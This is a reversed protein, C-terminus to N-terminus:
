IFFFFCLCLQLGKTVLCQKKDGRGDQQKRDPWLSLAVSDGWNSILNSCMWTTKLLIPSSISVDRGVQWKGISFQWSTYFIEGLRRMTLRLSFRCCSKLQLSKILGQEVKFIVCLLQLGDNSMRGRAHRHGHPNYVWAFCYRVVCDLSGSHPALSIGLTEIWVAQHKSRRTHIYAGSNSCM